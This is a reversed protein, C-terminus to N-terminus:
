EMAEAITPAFAPGLGLASATLSCYKLFSRRTIGQRRMVEYFTETM